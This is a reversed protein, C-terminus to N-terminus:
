HGTHPSAGEQVDEAPETSKWHLSGSPTTGRGGYEARVRLGYVTRYADLAGVIGLGLRSCQKHIFHKRLSVWHPWLSPQRRVVSLLCGQQGTRVQRCEPEKGRSSRLARSEGCASQARGAPARHGGCGVQEAFCFCPGRSSPLFLSPPSAMASGKAEDLDQEGLGRSFLPGCCSFCLSNPNPKPAQM